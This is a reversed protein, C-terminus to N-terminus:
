SWLYRMKESMYNITVADIQAYTLAGGQFGCDAGIFYTKRPGKLWAMMDAWLGVDAGTASAVVGGAVGTGLSRLFQRRDM